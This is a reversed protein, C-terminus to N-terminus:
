RGRRRARASRPRRGRRRLHHLDLVRHVGPMRAGAPSRTTLRREARIRSPAESASPSTATSGRAPACAPARRGPHSPCRVAPRRGSAAPSGTPESVAIAASSPSSAAVAARGPDVAAGIATSPSRAHRTSPEVARRARCATSRAAVDSMAAGDRGGCARHDIAGAARRTGRMPARATRAPQPTARRRSAAARARRACPRSRRARRRSRARAASPRASSRDRGAGVPRGAAIEGGFRASGDSGDLRRRRRTTTWTPPGSSADCPRSRAAFIAAISCASRLQDRRQGFSTSRAPPSSRTQGSWPM